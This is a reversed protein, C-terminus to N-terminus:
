RYNKGCDKCEAYGKGNDIGGWHWIYGAQKKCGSCTDTETM